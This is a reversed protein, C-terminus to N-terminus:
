ARADIDEQSLTVHGDPAVVPKQEMVVKVKHEPWGADPTSKVKPEKEDPM